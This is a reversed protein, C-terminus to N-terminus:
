KKMKGRCMNYELKFETSNHTAKCTYTKNEYKADISIQSIYSFTKEVEATTQLTKNKAASVLQNGSLWQVTLKDPYYDKLQCQLV